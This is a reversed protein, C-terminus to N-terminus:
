SAERLPVLVASQQPCEQHLDYGATERGIGVLEGHVRLVDGSVDVLSLQAKALRHITAHGKAPPLGATDRRATVVSTMLNSLAILAADVRAEAAPVDVQLRAATAMIEKSM